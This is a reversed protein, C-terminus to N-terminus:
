GEGTGRRRRAETTTKIGRPTLLRSRRSKLAKKRKKQERAQAQNGGKKVRTGQGSKRGSGQRLYYLLHVM